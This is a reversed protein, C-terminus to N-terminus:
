IHGQQQALFSISFGFTSQHHYMADRLSDFPRLFLDCPYLIDDSVLVLLLRGGEHRKGAQHHAGSRCGTSPCCVCRRDLRGFSCCGVDLEFLSEFV